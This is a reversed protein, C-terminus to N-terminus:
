KHLLAKVSLPASNSPASGCVWPRVWVKDLLFIHHYLTNDTKKKLAGQISNNSPKDGGNDM